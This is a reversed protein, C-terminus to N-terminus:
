KEYDTKLVKVGFIRRHLRIFGQKHSEPIKDTIEALQQFYASNVYRPHKPLTKNGWGDTFPARCKKKFMERKQKEMM